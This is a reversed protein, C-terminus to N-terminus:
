IHLALYILWRPFLILCVSIHLIIFYVALGNEVNVCRVSFVIYIQIIVYTFADAM